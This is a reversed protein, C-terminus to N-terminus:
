VAWHPNNLTWRVVQEISEEFTLPMKWGMKRLCTGDLAYRRDYGKRASESPVLKYKLEKGVFKAIMQAMELNNFEVDGCVNYRDPRLAGDRYMAPEFQSLFVFVDAHNKAHLYYRAGINWFEDGEQHNSIFDARDAEAMDAYVPMEKGSAVMKVIKPIFKEPDQGEGFNNMTNTLVVPVDYSRWYSIAVAEQAAKSAAYPNSPMIVDWETHAQDPQAEGYVEDTSVQYFISPKVRRAFELMNIVLEYNNRLCPTPDDVSREVASESAMNIIYDLKSEVINGRDDIQRDMILNELQPDIPVSLDHKLMLLRGSAMAEKLKEEGVVDQTRRHTGKHRFSDLCILDWKTNDLFYEVCHAGIFGGSGTLLVRKRGKM